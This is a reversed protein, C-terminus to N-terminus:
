NKIMLNKFKHKQMETMETSCREFVDSLHPPIVDSQDSTEVSNSQETNSTPFLDTPIMNGIVTHKNISLKENNVNALRVPVCGDIPNVLVKGVLIGSRDIFDLKGEIFSTQYRDFPDIPKASVIIETQPPIEIYKTTAIRACMPKSSGEHIFCDIKQGKIILKMQSLLIDCGNKFLFDRGLIAENKIDAILIDHKFINGGIDITIETKGHLPSTEGTVTVM